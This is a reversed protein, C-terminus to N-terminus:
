WQTKVKVFILVEFFYQAWLRSLYTICYVFRKSLRQLSGLSIFSVAYIFSFSCFEVPIAMEYERNLIQLNNMEFIRQTVTASQEIILQTSIEESM